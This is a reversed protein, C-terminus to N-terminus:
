LPSMDCSLRKKMKKRVAADLPLRRQKCLLKEHTFYDSFPQLRKVTTITAFDAALVEGRDKFQLVQLSLLSPERHAWKCVDHIRVCIFCPTFGAGM